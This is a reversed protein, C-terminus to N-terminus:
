RIGFVSWGNAGECQLETWKMQEIELLHLDGYAQIYKLVFGPVRVKNFGPEKISYLDKHWPKSYDRYSQATYDGVYMVYWLCGPPGKKM